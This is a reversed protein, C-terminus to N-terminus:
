LSVTLLTLSYVLREEKRRKREDERGRRREEGVCNSAMSARRQKGHQSSGAALAVNATVM